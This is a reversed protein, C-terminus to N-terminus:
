PCATLEAAARRAGALHEGGTGSFIRVAGRGAAKAAYLAGDAQAHLTESNGDDAFAIGVSAGLEIHRGAIEIPRRMTRVVAGALRVVVARPTEPGFVVAFEDGGIRAVCDSTAHLRSLRRGVARLCDDGVLHGFADNVQKFHDLDILMLAGVPAGAAAANSAEAMRSQFRSRSSLGTVADFEAMHRLRLTANKEATIDQKMGFIRVPEGAECEVTATIRIWRPRGRATTIEADLSFGGGERIARSRIDELELRTAEPYFALIEDRDLTSGRPLDFMDYVVDSWRLTCDDLECEWVGIQAANSAREFIKRSHALEAQLRAILAEQVAIRTELTAIRDTSSNPTPGRTEPSLGVSAATAAPM